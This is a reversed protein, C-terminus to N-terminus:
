SAFTVSTIHPFACNPLVVHQWTAAADDSVWLGGFPIDGPRAFWGPFDPRGDDDQTAYLLRRPNDKDIALSFSNQSMGTRLGTSAQKWHHAGDVTKWVGAMESAAYLILPNTPDVVLSVIRGGPDFNSTEHSGFDADPSVDTTRLPSVNRAIPPFDRASAMGPSFLLGRFTGIALAALMALWLSKRRM